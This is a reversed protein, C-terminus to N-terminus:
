APHPDRGNGVGKMGEKTVKWGNDGAINKEYKALGARKLAKMALDAESDTLGVIARLDRLVVPDRHKRLAELCAAANKETQPNPKGAM